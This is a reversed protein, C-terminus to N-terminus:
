PFSISEMALIEKPTKTLPTFADKRPYPTYVGINRRAERPDGRNRAREPGETWAPRVYGKDRQSPRVMETSGVDVEGRVFARVREFMKDVTKHIKDNLKKALKPHGHGHMFAFIHLIPPVGKIHSIESKFRDMFAQLGENQRRKIGHIEIPDKAYRKYPSNLDECTNDSGEWYESDLSTEQHESRNRRSKSRERRAKERTTSQDELRRSRILHTSKKNKSPTKQSNITSRTQRRTDSTGSSELSFRDSFGKTLSGASAEKDSDAYSLKRPTAKMKGQQDHEKIMTRLIDINKKIFASSPSPTKQTQLVPKTPGWPKENWTGQRRERYNRRWLSQRITRLYRQALVSSIVGSTVHGEVCWNRRFEPPSESGSKDKSLDADGSRKNLKARTIKASADLSSKDKPH